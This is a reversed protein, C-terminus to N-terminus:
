GKVFSFREIVGLVHVLFLNILNIRVKEVLFTPFSDVSKQASEGPVKLSVSDRLLRIGGIIDSHM